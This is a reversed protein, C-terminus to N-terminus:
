PNETVSDRHDDVVFLGPQDFLDGNCSLMYELDLDYKYDCYTIDGSQLTAYPLDTFFGKIQYHEQLPSTPFNDMLFDVAQYDQVITNLM